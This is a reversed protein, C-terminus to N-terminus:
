LQWEKFNFEPQMNATADQIRLELLKPEQGKELTTTAARKYERNDPGIGTFFATLEHPGSKLNGIYLRQVGGRSLADNQRETYLHSAVLEDNIRLEVADLQFFKGTDVSVFVVVQTNAPFLLEEELILLDRNLELAATKLNQVQESIPSAVGADQATDQQQALASGAALCACLLAWRGLNHLPKV